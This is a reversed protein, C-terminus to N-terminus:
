PPEQGQEAHDGVSQPDRLAVAHHDLMLSRVLFSQATARAAGMAGMSFMMVNSSLAPSDGSSIGETSARSAGLLLCGTVGLESHANKGLVLDVPACGVSLAL